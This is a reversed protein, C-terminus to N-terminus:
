PCGCTGAVSKATFCEACTETASTPQTPNETDRHANEPHTIGWRNGSASNAWAACNPAAREAEEQSLFGITHGYEIRLDPGGDARRARIGRTSRASFDSIPIAKVIGAITDWNSAPIGEALLAADLTGYRRPNSM